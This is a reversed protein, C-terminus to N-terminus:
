SCDGQTVVYDASIWGSTGQYEVNFWGPASAMPKLTADRPVAGIRNGDPGDRFNLNHTTTVTCDTMAAAVATSEEQVPSATKFEIAGIDCGGGQPRPTGIQDSKPCLDAIAANRAPSGPQLPYHAPSGTVEALLPNGSLAPTGCSSDGIFNGRNEQLSGGVCHSKGGIEDFVISNRVRVREQFQDGVHIASGENTTSRNNMM